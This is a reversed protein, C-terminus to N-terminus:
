KKQLFAALDRLAVEASEGTAMNKVMAVGAAAERDGLVLTFAANFRDARKMKQKMGSGDFIIETTLGAEFLSDAVQFALSEQAADMPVIAILRSSEASTVLPHQQSELIMMVRELGVGAGVCPLADKKGLAASLDYRGGGCFTSQSGLENSTFEFVVGNYYDLGRVLMPNLIFNVSLLQLEKQLRAWEAASNESFYESLKPANKYLAQCQENKCDFVRLVNKDRRVRCTECLAVDNKVLFERLASRHLSRDEAVGLFNLNLVFDKIGLAVFMRNLMAIFAIDHGLSPANMVEISCTYFQRNRGKQPREHRFAPGFQFVKWPSLETGSEYFARVMPATLEPRLCISGESQSAFTYMEKSVIDTDTGVARVFLETKELSPTRIESFAHAALVKHMVACVKNWSTLNLLDETGRVRTIVQESM